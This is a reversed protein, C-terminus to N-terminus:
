LTEELAMGWSLGERKWMKGCVSILQWNSNIFPSQNHCLGIVPLRCNEHLLCVSGQLLELRLTESGPTQWGKPFVLATVSMTGWLRHRDAVSVIKLQGSLV